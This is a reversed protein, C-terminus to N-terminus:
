GHPYATAILTLAEVYIQAFMDHILYLPRNRTWSQGSMADYDVPLTIGDMAYASMGVGKSTEICRKCHDRHAIVGVTGLAAASGADAVIAAAVGATSLYTISGDPNIIPEIATLNTSNMGWELTLFDAIEWQSYVMASPNATYAQYAAAALQANIPGPDPFAAQNGGTSSTNGSAPTPRNGFSYCVISNVQAVPVMPLDWTFGVDVVHPALIAATAPDKLVHTLETTILALFQAQDLVHPSGAALAKTFAATFPLAAVAGAGHLFDRRNLM